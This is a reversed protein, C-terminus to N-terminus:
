LTDIYEQAKDLAEQLNTSRFEKEREGIAQVVVSVIPEIPEQVSLSGLLRVFAVKPHNCVLETRTVQQFSINSTKLSDPPLPTTMTGM